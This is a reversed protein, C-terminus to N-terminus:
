GFYRLAERDSLVHTTDEEPPPRPITRNRITTHLFEDVWSHDGRLSRDVFSPTFILYWDFYIDLWWDDGVDLLDSGIRLGDTLEDPRNEAAEKWECMGALLMDDVVGLEYIRHCVQVERTEADLNVCPNGSIRSFMAVARALYTANVEDSTM